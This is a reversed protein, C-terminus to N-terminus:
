NMIIKLFEKPEFKRIDNIKEGITIFRIPKNLKNLISLAIGGKATGDLKTISVSDININKEFENAQCMSNQGISSDLVLMTEHPADKDVKKLVFIIKKLEKMLNEKTHIRGATDALLIDINKKKASIYGDYIVSASDSGKKRSVVEVDINDCLTKIQSIAGARFTDGAAVMVSLNKKKLYNAMKVILSTKGVGNVGCILMVFPKVKSESFHQNKLSLLHLIHKELENFLDNSSNIKGKQYQVELYLLIEEIIEINIDAKVLIKELEETVNSNISKDKYFIHNFKESFIKKTKNIKSNLLNFIVNLIVNVNM